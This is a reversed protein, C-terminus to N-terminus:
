SLSACCYFKPSIVFCILCLSRVLALLIPLIRLTLLSLLKPKSLIILFMGPLDDEVDHTVFGLAAYFDDDSDSDDDVGAEAKEALAAVSAIDIDTSLLLALRTNKRGALAAVLFLTHVLYSFAFWEYMQADEKEEAVALVPQWALLRTGWAKFVSESSPEM